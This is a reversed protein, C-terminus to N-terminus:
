PNGLLHPFLYPYLLLYPQHLSLRSSTVGNMIVWNTPFGMKVLVQQLFGWDVRDYAKELDIKVALGGKRSKMKIMTHLLEQVIIINDSTQRGPIFSSQNPSVLKHLLPRIIGVLVKSIIRVIVNCLSIPRFQTISDPHDVKPILNILTENVGEPLQGESFARQVVTTVAHGVIHWFRHYFLPQLGDPGPAKFAGLLFVAEKVEAAHIPRALNM